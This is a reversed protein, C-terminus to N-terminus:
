TNPDKIRKGFQVFSKAFNILKYKRSLTYACSMQILYLVYRISNYNSAFYYFNLLGNIKSNYFTIIEYHSLNTLKTYPQYKGLKDQRIFGNKKLTELNNDM